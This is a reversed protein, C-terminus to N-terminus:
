NQRFDEIVADIRQLHGQHANAHHGCFVLSGGSALVARVVARAGCRDCRDAATLPEMTSTTM